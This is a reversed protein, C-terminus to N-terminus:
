VHSRGIQFFLLLLERTLDSGHAMGGLLGLGRYEQWVAFLSRKIDLAFNFEPHLNDWGTLITNPQYNAFALFAVIVLIFTQPWLGIINKVLALIHKFPPRHKLKTIEKAM